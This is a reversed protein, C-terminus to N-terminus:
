SFGATPRVKSAGEPSHGGDGRFVTINLICPIKFESGLPLITIDSLHLEGDSFMDVGDGSCSGNQLFVM